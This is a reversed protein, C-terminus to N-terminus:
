VAPRFVKADDFSDRALFATVGGVALLALLLFLTRRTM